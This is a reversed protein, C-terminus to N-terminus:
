NTDCRTSLKIPGGVVRDLMEDTLQGDLLTLENVISEIQERTLGEALAPNRLLQARYAPDAVARELITKLTPSLM